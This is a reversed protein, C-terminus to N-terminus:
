RKFMVKDRTNIKIKHFMDGERVYDERIHFMVRIGEAINQDPSDYFQRQGPTFV